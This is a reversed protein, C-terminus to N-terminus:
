SKEDGNFIEVNENNFFVDKNLDFNIYKSFDFHTNRLKEYKKDLGHPCESCRKRNELINRAKYHLFEKTIKGKEIELNFCTDDEFGHGPILRETFVFYKLTHTKIYEDYYDKRIFISEKIFDKYYDSKNNNCYIVTEGKSDIWSLYQYNPKLNLDKILKAPPLLLNTEDLLETYSSIQRVYM